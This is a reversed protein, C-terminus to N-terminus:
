EGLKVNPIMSEENREDLDTLIDQQTKRQFGENDKRRHDLYESRMKNRNDGELQNGQRRYKLVLFFFFFAFGPPFGHNFITFKDSM